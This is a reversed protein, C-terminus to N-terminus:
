GVEFNLMMGHDEHELNHCHLLFLGRHEFRLLVDVREDPLLLVTDKWGQEWPQVTGRGGRRAVVQFHTAHVHVPHAFQGDNEFTWRELRGLPVRADVRSMDFERGDITHQMMRTTFRFTREATVRESALPPIAPLRAPITAREEPRRGVVLELLAMPAGQPVGGGMGRGGPGGRGMGGMGGMGGGMGMGPIAFALSRLMVSAGTAVSRLDVLLDV